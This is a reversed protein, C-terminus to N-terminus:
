FNQIQNRLSAMRTEPFPSEWFESIEEVLKIVQLKSMGLNHAKRAASYLRRSGEGNTANFAAEFTSFPNKIMTAKEVKSLEKVPTLEQAEATAISVHDSIAVPNQDTVSLVDRGAYGFFIQSQPLKDITISLWDAVSNAFYVWTISDIDVVGDLEIILRFKFKNTPDSTIAIHHNIDQLIFSLEEMTMTSKDIDFCIWKTGSIINDVGRVGLNVDLHPNKTKDYKAGNKPTRLNFPTFAIDNSLLGALKDFTVEGYTYNGVSRSAMGIKIQRLGEPSAGDAYAKALKSYDDTMFSAGTIDTRVIREYFIKNDKITYLGDPDYSRASLILDKMKTIFNGTGTIYNLKKLAHLSISAKGAELESQMYDAFVEYQEKVLEIEFDIM